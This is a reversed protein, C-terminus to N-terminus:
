SRETIHSRLREVVQTGLAITIHRGNVLKDRWMDSLPRGDFICRAVQCVVQHTVFLVSGTDRRYIDWLGAAVRRQVHDLGEGGGPFEVTHPADHWQDFLGPYAADAEERNMGEVAGHNVETLWDLVLARIGRATEFPECSQQARKLPSVYIKDIPLEALNQVAERAQARGNENLEIDIRGQCRLEANMRTEGHRVFTITEVPM